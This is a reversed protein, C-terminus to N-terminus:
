LVIDGESREKEVEIVVGSWCGCGWLQEIDLGVIKYSAGMDNDNIVRVSITGKINHSAILGESNLMVGIEDVYRQLTQSFNRLSEFDTTM